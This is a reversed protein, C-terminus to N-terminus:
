AACLHAPLGSEGRGACIRKARSQPLLLSLQTRSFDGWSLLMRSAPASRFAYKQRLNHLLVKCVSIPLRVIEPLAVAFQGLGYLAQPPRPPTHHGVEKLRQRPRYQPLLDGGLNALSHPAAHQRSQSLHRGSPDHLLTYGGELLKACGEALGTVYVADCLLDDRACEVEIGEPLHVVRLDALPEARQGTDAYPRRLHNHEVGHLARVDHAVAVEGYAPAHATDVVVALERPLHKLAVAPPSIALDQNCRYSTRRKAACM